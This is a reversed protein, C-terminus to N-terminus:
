MTVCNRMVATRFSSYCTQKARRYVDAETLPLGLQTIVWNMSLCVQWAESLTCNFRPTPSVGTSVGQCSDQHSINTAQERGGKSLQSIQSATKGSWAVRVTRMGHLRPTRCRISLLMNGIARIAFTKQVRPRYLKTNMERPILTVSEDQNAQSKATKLVPLRTDQSDRYETCPNSDQSQAIHLSAQVTPTVYSLTLVQLTLDGSPTHSRCWPRRRWTGLSRSSLTSIGTECLVRPPQLHASTWTCYHPLAKQLNSLVTCVCKNQNRWAKKM